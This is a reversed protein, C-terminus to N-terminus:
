LSSRCYLGSSLASLVYGRRHKQSIPSSLFDKDIKKTRDTVMIGFAGMTTTLSTIALLGAMVWNDM